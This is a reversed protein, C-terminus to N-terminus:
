YYVVDNKSNVESSPGELPLWELVKKIYTDWFDWDHGGPGEVYTVEAGNEILFDRFERNNKILFDETGCAMYIKPFHITKDHSAKEKLMTVLTKPNKDSKIAENLDGFCSEFYARNQPLSIGGYSMNLAQELIFAGSLAAICGFNEHYKLGNRMAGFGGMSFGGIFTDERKHSLPFMKRTIEVLEKGIFEGYFNGSEAHDVYFSNDGSPMVVALNKEEAWRQIRSGSLWSMCSGYIGHLLYLTKYPKDQKLPTEPSSQKDVPLIVQLPVNRMLSNSKFLVELVAM